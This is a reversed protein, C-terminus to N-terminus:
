KLRAIFVILKNPAATMVRRSQRQIACTCMLSKLKFLQQQHPPGMSVPSVCFTLMVLLVTAMQYQYGGRGLMCMLAEYLSQLQGYLKVMSANKVPDGAALRGLTVMQWPHFRALIVM